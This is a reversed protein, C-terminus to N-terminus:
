NKILNSYKKTLVEKEQKMLLNKKIENIELVKKALKATLRESM